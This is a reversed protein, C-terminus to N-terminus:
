APFDTVYLNHLRSQPTAHRELPFPRAARRSLPCPSPLSIPMHPKFSPSTPQGLATSRHSHTPRQDLGFFPSPQSAQNTRLPLPM